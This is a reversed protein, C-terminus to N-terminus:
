DEDSKRSRKASKEAPEVIEYGSISLFLEDAMEQSIPESLVGGDVEHFAVGSINDSANPRTCLIQVTM